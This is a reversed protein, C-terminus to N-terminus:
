VPWYRALLRNAHHQRGASFLELPGLKTTGAPGSNPTGNTTTGTLSVQSGNASYVWYYYKMGAIATADDYTTDKIGSAIETATSRDNTTSRWVQYSNANPAAVWSLESENPLSTTSGSTPPQPPLGTTPALVQFGFPQSQQTDPNTVRVTWNGAVAGLHITM